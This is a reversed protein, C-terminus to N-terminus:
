ANEVNVPKMLVRKQQLWSEKVHGCASADM